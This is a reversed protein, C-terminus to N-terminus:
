KKKSEEMLQVGERYSRRYPKLDLENCEGYGCACAYLGYEAPGSPVAAGGVMKGPTLEGSRILLHGEMRCKQRQKEVKKEQLYRRIIGIM